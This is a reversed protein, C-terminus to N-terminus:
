RPGINITDRFPCFHTKVQGVDGQLLMPHTLIIESSITHKAYVKCRDQASILLIELHVFILEVQGVDRLLVM